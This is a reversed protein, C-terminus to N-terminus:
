TYFLSLFLDEWVNNESNSNNTSVEIREKSISFYTNYGLSALLCLILGVSLITAIRGLYKENM